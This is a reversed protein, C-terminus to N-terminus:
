KVGLLAALRKRGVPRDGRAADEKEGSSMSISASGFLGDEGVPLGKESLLADRLEAMEKAEGDNVDVEVKPVGCTLLGM